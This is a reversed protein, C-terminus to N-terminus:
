ALSLAVNRLVVRGIFPRHSGSAACAHIRRLKGGHRTQRRRLASRLARASLRLGLDRRSASARSHGSCTRERGEGELPATSNYCRPRLGAAKTRGRTFAPLEDESSWRHAPTNHCYSATTSSPKVSFDQLTNSYLNWNRYHKAPFAALLSNGHEAQERPSTTSM